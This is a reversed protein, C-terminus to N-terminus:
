QTATILKTIVFDTIAYASLIIILGVVANTMWDKAKKVQDAEGGATMWLFGAYVVIVVLIVGLIGLVIKIIRGIRETLANPNPSENFGAQGIKDLDSTLVTPDVARAVPAFSVMAVACLSVVMTSLVLM